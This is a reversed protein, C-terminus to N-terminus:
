YHLKKVLPLLNLLYTKAYARPRQIAQRVQAASAASLVDRHTEQPTLCHADFPLDCAALLARISPEPESALRDYDLEHVRDPWLAHWQGSLQQFDLCHVAMADLDNSFGM